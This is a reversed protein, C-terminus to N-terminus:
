NSPFREHKACTRAWKRASIVRFNYIDSLRNFDLLIDVMAELANIRNVSHSLYFTWLNLSSSVWAMGTGSFHQGASCIVRQWLEHLAFPVPLSYRTPPLNLPASISLWPLSVKAAHHLHGLLSEFEHRLCVREESGARNRTWRASVKEEPLHAQHRLLRTSFGLFSLTTSLSEVKEEALPIGLCHAVSQIIRLNQLCEDLLSRRWNLFRGPLPPSLSYWPQTPSDLALRRCIPQARSLPHTAWNEAVWLAKYVASTGSIQISWDGAPFVRSDQIEHLNVLITDFNPLKECLFRCWINVFLFKYNWFGHEDSQLFRFILFM